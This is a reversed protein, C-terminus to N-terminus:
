HWKAHNTWRIGASTFHDFTNLANSTVSPDESTPSLVVVFMYETQNWYWSQFLSSGLLCNFALITNYIHHSQRPVSVVVCARGLWLRYIGHEFRNSARVRALHLMLPLTCTEHVIFFSVLCIDFLQYWAHFCTKSSLIDSFLRHGRLSRHRQLFRGALFSFFSEVFPRLGQENGRTACDVRAAIGFRHLHLIEACKECSFKVLGNFNSWGSLAIWLHYSHKFRRRRM